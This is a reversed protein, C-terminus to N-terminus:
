LKQKHNEGYPYDYGLKELCECAIAHGSKIAEKVWYRAKELDGKHCYHCALAYQAASEGQEGAKTYWYIAKEINQVVEDGNYYKEALEYQADADGSEAQKVLEDFDM